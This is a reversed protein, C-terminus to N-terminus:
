SSKQMAELQLYKQNLEELEDFDVRHHQRFRTLFWEDFDSILKIHPEFIERITIKDTCNSLFRKAPSSWGDWEVFREKGYYIGSIVNSPVGKDTAPEGTPTMNLQMSSDPLGKHTIYNRLDKVFRAIESSNFRKQIESIYDNYFQTDYYKENMFNRSHDVFTSVSCLYNHVLRNAERHIQNSSETYERRFAVIMFDASETIGIAKMLENANVNLINTLFSRSHLRNTAEMGRSKLLVDVYFKGPTM